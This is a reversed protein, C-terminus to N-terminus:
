KRDALWTLTAKTYFTTDLLVKADVWGDDNKQQWSAGWSNVVKVVDRCNTNSNGQCVRRYGAIVVAHPQKCTKQITPIKDLCLNNVGLPRGSALIDKLKTLAGNYNGPGNNAPYYEVGVKKYSEFALSNKMNVCSAPIFLRDFFESYTQEAFAKLLVENSVKIDFDKEIESKATAYFDSTCSDCGKPLSKSKDYLGQLKNWLDVQLQNMEKAGGVRSLIKDLSLCEESAASGHSAVDILANTINGGALGDGASIDKNRNKDKTGSGADEVRGYPALGLPSFLGDQRIQDCRRDGLARCNEATLMTSAAYAYCIGLSDQSMIPPLNMVESHSVINTYVEKNITEFGYVQALSLSPYVLVLFLLTKMYILIRWIEIYAGSFFKDKPRKDM